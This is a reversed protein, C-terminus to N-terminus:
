FTRHITDEQIITQSLSPILTDISNISYRYKLARPSPDQSFPISNVGTNFKIASSLVRDRVVLRRGGISKRAYFQSTM